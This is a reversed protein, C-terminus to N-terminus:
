LRLGCRRGRRDRRAAQASREPQIGPRRRSDDCCRRNSTCIRYAPGCRQRPQLWPPHNEKNAAKSVVVRGKWYRNTIDEYTNIVSPRPIAVKNCGYGMAYKTFGVWYGEMDTNRNPMRHAVSDTSFPQLAGAAKAAYMDVLNDFLVVDAQTNKGESILRELLADPTDTVVNVKIANRKEFTKVLHDEMTGYRTTYFTLTGKYEPDQQNNSGRGQDGGCSSLLLFIFVFLSLYKGSEQLNLFTNLVKKGM